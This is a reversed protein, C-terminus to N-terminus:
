EGEKKTEKKTEKVESKLEKEITKIYKEESNSIKDEHSGKNRQPTRDITLKSSPKIMEMSCRMVKTKKEDEETAAANSLFFFFVSLFVILLTHWKHTM